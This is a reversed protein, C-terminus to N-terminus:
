DKIFFHKPYGNCYDDSKWEEAKALADEYSKAWGSLQGHPTIQKVSFSTGFSPEIEYTALGNFFDEAHAYATHAGADENAIRSNRQETTERM